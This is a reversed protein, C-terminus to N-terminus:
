APMRYLMWYVVVGTISVYMWLPWTWRAIKKHADFRGAWARVFTALVLPVIVVALITHSILITFYVTRITGTGLFKTSGHEFHYTLYSILFVVSVVIASTMCVRHAFVRKTMIFIFGLLLLMSCTFNLIANVTPLHLDAIM